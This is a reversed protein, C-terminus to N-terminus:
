ITSKQKKQLKSQSISYASLITDALMFFVPITTAATATYKPAKPTWVPRRTMVERIENRIPYSNIGQGSASQEVGSFVVKLTCHTKHTVQRHTPTQYLILIKGSYPTTQLCAM